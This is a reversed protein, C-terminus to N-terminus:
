GYYLYLLIEVEVDAELLPGRPLTLMEKVVNSVHPWRKSEILGHYSIDENDVATIFQWILSSIGM